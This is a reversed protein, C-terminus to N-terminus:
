IARSINNGSLEPPNDPTEETPMMGDPNEMSM